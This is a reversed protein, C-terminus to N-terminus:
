LRPRLGMLVRYALRILRCFDGNGVINRFDFFSAYFVPQMQLREVQLQM